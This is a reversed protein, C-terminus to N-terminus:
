RWGKSYDLRLHCNRCLWKYNNFDRDYIGTVNALDRSPNINCFECKEPRPRPFHKWLLRHLGHKSVNDGKWNPHNENSMISKRGLLMLSIKNRTEETVIHGSRGRSPVSIGIQANRIKENTEKSHSGRFLLGCKKTCFIGTKNKLRRNLDWNQIRIEKNCYRCITKRFM